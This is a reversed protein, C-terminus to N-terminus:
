GLSTNPTSVPRASRRGMDPRAMRELSYKVAASDFADGNHFRVGERLRFTFTRADPSVTWSTALSPVYRGNEDRKVLTDFLAGFVTLVDGSDTCAHPDDLVVRAQAITVPKAM